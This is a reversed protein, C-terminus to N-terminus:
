DPATQLLKKGCGFRHTRPVFLDRGHPSCQPCATSWATKSVASPSTMAIIVSAIGIVIGPHHRAADRTPRSLPSAPCSRPHEHRRELVASQHTCFDRAPKPMAYETYARCLAGDHIRGDRITVARDAEAAIHRPRAYHLRHDQRTGPSTSPKWSLHGPQRDPQGDARRALIIPPDNSLRAIAVRQM